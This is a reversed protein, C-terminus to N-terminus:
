SKRVQVDMPHMYVPVLRDVDKVVKGNKLMELGIRAVNIAKPYWFKEDAFKIKKKKASLQSSIASLKEIGDGVLLIGGKVKDLRKLLEEYAILLYPSVRKPRRDKTKPRQDTYRYFCAYVKEKKADVVVCITDEACSINRALVDLSPVAIVKKRVGLALAKVTSVGIRLGTFSGPGISLCYADLNTLELEARRLAKKITPILHSAHKFGSDYNFEVKPGKEDLVAVSLVRTSTDIALIKM